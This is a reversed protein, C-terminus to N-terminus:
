AGVKASDVAVPEFSLAEGIKYQGNKGYGYRYYVEVLRLGKSEYFAVRRELKQAHSVNVFVTQEDFKILWVEGFKGDVIKADLLTQPDDLSVLGLESDIGHNQALYAEARLKRSMTDHHFAYGDEDYIRRKDLDIADAKTLLTEAYDSWEQDSVQTKHFINQTM